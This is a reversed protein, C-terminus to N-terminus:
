DFCIYLEPFFQQTQPENKPKTKPIEKHSSCLKEKLKPFDLYMPVSFDQLLDGASSICCLMAKSGTLVTLCKLDPIQKSGQGCAALNGAGFM